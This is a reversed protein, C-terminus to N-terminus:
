EGTQVGEMECGPSQVERNFIKRVDWIDGENGNHSIHGMFVTPAGTQGPEQGNAVVVDIPCCHGIFTSSTIIIVTVSPSVM